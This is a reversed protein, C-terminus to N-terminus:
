YSEEVQMMALVSRSLPEAARMTQSRPHLNTQAHWVGCWERFGKMATWDKNALNEQYAMMAPGAGMLVFVGTRAKEMCEVTGPIVAWGVSGAWAAM